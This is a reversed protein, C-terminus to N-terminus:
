GKLEVNCCNNDLMYLTNFLIEKVCVKVITYYTAGITTLFHYLARLPARGTSFGYHLASIPERVISIICHPSIYGESLQKSSNWWLHMVVKQSSNGRWMCSTGQKKKEGKGKLCRSDVVTSLSSLLADWRDWLTDVPVAYSMQLWTKGEEQLFNTIRKALYEKIYFM